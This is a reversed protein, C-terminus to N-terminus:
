GSEVLIAWPNIHGIKHLREISDKWQRRTTKGATALLVCGVGDALRDAEFRHGDGYVRLIIDWKAHRRGLSRALAASPTLPRATDLKLPAQDSTVYWVGPIDTPSPKGDPGSTRQGQRGSKEYRLWPNNEGLLSSLADDDRHDVILISHSRKGLLQALAIAGAAGGYGAHVGHLLLQGTTRPPPVDQQVEEDEQRIDDTLLGIWEAATEATPKSTMANIDARISEPSAPAHLYLWTVSQPDLKLDAPVRLVSKARRLAFASIWALLLGASLLWAIGSFGLSCDPLWPRNPERYLTWHATSIPHSEDPLPEGELAALRKELEDCEERIEVYEKELIDIQRLVEERKRKEITRLTEQQGQVQPHQPGLRESRERLRERVVEEENELGALVSSTVSAPIVDPVGFEDLTFCQQLREQARQGRLRTRRLESRLSLVQKDGTPPPIRPEEEIRGLETVLREAYHRAMRQAELSDISWAAVYWAQETVEVAQVRDTVSLAAAFRTDGGTLSKWVPYDTRGPAAAEGAGPLRSATQRWWERLREKRVNLDAPRNPAPLYRSLGAPPPSKSEGFAKTVWVDSRYVDTGTYWLTIVVPMWVMCLAAVLWPSQSPIRHLRGLEFAWRRSWARLASM